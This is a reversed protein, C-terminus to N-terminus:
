YKDNNERVSCHKKEIKDFTNELLSNIISFSKLHTANEKQNSLVEEAMNLCLLRLNKLPDKTGTHKVIKAYHDQIISELISITEDDYSTSIIMTHEAITIKKKDM